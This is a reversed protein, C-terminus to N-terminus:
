VHLWEEQFSRLDDRDIANLILSVYVRYHINM